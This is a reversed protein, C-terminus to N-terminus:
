ETRTFTYLLTHSRGGTRVEITYHRRLADKAFRLRQGLQRASEYFPNQASMAMPALEAYLDNCNIERGVNASRELWRDLLDVLPDDETILMDREAQAADLAHEGEFGLAAHCANFFRAFGAMRHTYGDTKITKVIALVKNVNYLWEGFLRGRNNKVYELLGEPDTTTKRQELRLILCRDAVDTRRFTVPNGSTIAVFCQPRIDIVDTDTFKKRKRWGGATAYACIADRLWAVESDMNDLHAIPASGLLQVGFDEEDKKGIILPRSKGTLLTQFRQVAITKGSRMEGELLLLPKAPFLDGFPVTHLWAALLDRQAKATLKGQTEATFNLDDILTPLLEHHPGVEVNEIPEGGDDDLFLVGQGNPVQEITEGNLRWAQGDYSSVYLIGAAKDYHSFRKTERKEGYTLAYSRLFSVVSRTRSEGEFLSYRSGLLANLRSDNVHLRLVKGAVGDFMYPQGDATIFQSHWSQEQTNVIGSGIGIATNLKGDVDEVLQWGIRAADRPDITERAM